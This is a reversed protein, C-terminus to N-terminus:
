WFFHFFQVFFKREVCNHAMSLLGSRRRQCSFDAASVPFTPPASLFLRRRQCSFDAASVPFTRVFSGGMFVFGMATAKRTTTKDPIVM